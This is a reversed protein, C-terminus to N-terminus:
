TAARPRDHYVVCQYAGCEDRQMGVARIAGSFFPLREMVLQGMVPLEVNGARLHLRFKKYFVARSTANPWRSPWPAGFHSYEFCRRYFENMACYAIGQEDKKVWQTFSFLSNLKNTLFRHDAPGVNLRPGEKERHAWADFLYNYVMRYMRTVRNFEERQFGANLYITSQVSQLPAVLHM